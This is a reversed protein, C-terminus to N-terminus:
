KCSPGPPLKNESDKDLWASLILCEPEAHHYVFGARVAVPVLDAAHLPLKLWVGKRRQQKWVRLSHWLDREFEVPDLVPDRRGGELREDNIEVSSYVNIRHGLVRPASAM